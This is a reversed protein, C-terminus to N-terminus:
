GQARVDFRAGCDQHPCTATTTGGRTAVQEIAQLLAGAVGLCVGAPLTRHFLFETGASCSAPCVSKDSANSCVALFQGTAPKATTETPKGAAASSRDRADVEIVDRCADMALNALEDARTNAERRVHRVTWRALKSLKGSAEEFLPRLGPNKVRYQGNIQRVMLESDAVIDLEAEKLTAAVDLARLLANYEAQNNTMRGLFFGGEFVPRGHGDEMVVGAGAPGPNGRSGGDIHIQLAM